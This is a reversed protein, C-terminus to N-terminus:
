SQCTAEPANARVWDAANGGLCVVMDQLLGSMEPLEKACSAEAPGFLIVFWM